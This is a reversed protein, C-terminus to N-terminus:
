AMSMIKARQDNVLFPSTNVAGDISAKLLQGQASVLVGLVWAILWIAGGVVAGALWAGSFNFNSRTAADIGLSILLVVVFAVFGLTKVLRGVGVIVKAIRYADTYRSMVKESYPSTAVNQPSM